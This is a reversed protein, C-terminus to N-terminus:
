HLTDQIESGNGHTIEGKIIINIYVSLNYIDNGNVLGYLNLYSESDVYEIDISIKRNLLIRSAESIGNDAPLPSNPYKKLGYGGMTNM